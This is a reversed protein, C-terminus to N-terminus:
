LGLGRRKDRIVATIPQSIGQGDRGLSQGPSWGMKALLQHGINSQGVVPANGGVVDGHKAKTTKVPNGKPKPGGKKMDKKGKTKPANKAKGDKANQQRKKPIPKKIMSNTASPNAEERIKRFRKLLQNVLEQDQPYATHKTRVLIPSTHRFSGGQTRIDVYYLSALLSVARRDRKSMPNLWLESLNNNVIDMDAKLDNDDNVPKQRIRGPKKNKGGRKFSLDEIDLSEIESGAYIAKLLKQKQAITKRHLADDKSTIDIPKGWKNRGDFHSDSDEDSGGEDNPSINGLGSTPWEVESSSDSITQAIDTTEFGFDDDRGASFLTMAKLDGDSIGTLENHSDDSIVIVEKCSAALSPDGDTDVVMLDEM